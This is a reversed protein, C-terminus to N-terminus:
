TLIAVPLRTSMGGGDRIAQPRPPGAQLRGQRDPLPPAERQHEAAVPRLARRLPRDPRPVEGARPHLYAREIRETLEDTIEQLPRHTTSTSASRSKARHRRDPRAPERARDGPRPHHGRGARDRARARPRQGPWDYRLWGRSPRARSRRPRCGASWAATELFHDVLLPMDELRERLPPLEISVVNLRYYLDERFRGAAVAEALNSTPPPSSAATPRSRSPGASGSSAHRGPARPAAQGAHGPAARRDRRPLAHRGSALEFRGKKQRDAGTFAGREHGFLESELLHEPLAACNVAVLPGAAPHRRQLPHGPRGAGQRHRDRGHGAGHVGVLRGARGARLGRM